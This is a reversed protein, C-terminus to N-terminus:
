HVLILPTNTPLTTTTTSMPRLPDLDITQGFLSTSAMQNPLNIWTDTQNTWIMTVAVVNSYSTPLYFSCNIGDRAIGPDWQRRPWTPPPPLAFSQMTVIVTMMTLRAMAQVTALSSQVDDARQVHQLYCSSFIAYLVLFLIFYSGNNTFSIAMTMM